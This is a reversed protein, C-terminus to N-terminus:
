LACVALGGLLILRMTPITFQSRCCTKRSVEIGSGWHFFCDNDEVDEKADLSETDTEAEQDAVSDQVLSEVISAFGDSLVQNHDTVLTVDLLLV